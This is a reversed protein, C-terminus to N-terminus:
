CVSCLLRNTTPSRGAGLSWVSRSLRSYAYRMLEYSLICDWFRLADGTRVGTQIATNIRWKDHMRIAQLEIPNQHIIFSFCFKFRHRVEEIDIRSVEPLSSFKGRKASKDTVKAKFRRKEQLKQASCRVRAICM